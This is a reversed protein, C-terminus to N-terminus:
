PFSPPLVLINYEGWVYPGVMAEAAAIMAETEAFEYAASEVVEPESFVRSRPGIVRSDINGVALAILYTAVPVTQSFAFTRTGASADETPEGQAIASMVAVLPAPVTVKASYTAKVGPADQCPLMSRAHIAQCQSFLYPHTKGATQEPALFQLASGQPTTEFGISVVTTEGVGLDAPLPVRVARGFPTVEADLTAGEPLQTFHLHNSDLVVETASADNKRVTVAVSGVLKKGEFDVIYELAYHSASAKEENAFSSQEKLLSGLRCM